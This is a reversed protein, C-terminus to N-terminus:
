KVNSEPGKVTLQSIAAMVGGAVILDIGLKVLHDPVNPIAQLSGGVAALSGGFYKLRVFFKPTESKVRTALELFFKKM